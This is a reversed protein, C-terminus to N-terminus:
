SGAINRRLASLPAPFVADEAISLKRFDSKALAAGASRSLENLKELLNERSAIPFYYAPVLGRLTSVEIAIKGVSIKKEATENVLEDFSQIPYHLTALTKEVASLFAMTRASASNEGSTARTQEVSTTQRM